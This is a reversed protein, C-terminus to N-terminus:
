KKEEKNNESKLQNYEERVKKIELLILILVTLIVVILGITPWVSNSKQVTTSDPRAQEKESEKVTEKTEQINSSQDSTQKLPPQPQTLIQEPQTIPKDQQITTVATKEANEPPVKVNASSLSETSEFNQYDYSYTESIKEGYETAYRWTIVVKKTENLDIRFEEYNGPLLSINKYSIEHGGIKDAYIELSLNVEKNDKNAILYNGYTIENITTNYERFELLAGKVDFEQTKKIIVPTGSEIYSASATTIAQGTKTPTITASLIVSSNIELIKQYSIFQTVQWNGDSTSYERDASLQKSKVEFSQPYEFDITADRDDEGLNTVNITMNIEDGVSIYSINKDFELTILFDRDQAIIQRQRTEATLNYSNNYEFFITTAYTGANAATLTYQCKKREAEAIQSEWVIANNIIRCSDTGDTSIIKIKDSFELRAYAYPATNDGQNEIVLEQQSAKGVSLSNNMDIAISLEATKRSEAIIISAYNTISYTGLSSPRTTNYSAFELGTFCIKTDKRQECTNNSLVILGYPELTLTLTKEDSSLMPRITRGDSLNYTEGSLTNGSFLINESIASTEYTMLLTLILLLLVRLGTKCLKTNSEEREKM